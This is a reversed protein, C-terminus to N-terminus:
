YGSEREGEGPFFAALTAGRWGGAEDIRYLAM